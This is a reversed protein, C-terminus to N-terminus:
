SVWSKVVDMSTPVKKGAALADLKTMAIESAGIQLGSGAANLLAGTKRAQSEAILNNAQNKAQVTRSIYNQESAYKQSEMAAVERQTNEDIEAINLAGVYADEFLITTLSADSLATETARLRGLKENAERIAASEEKLEDKQTEAIRRNSEQYERKTQEAAARYEAEAQASARDAASNAQSISSATSVATLALKGITIPDCM